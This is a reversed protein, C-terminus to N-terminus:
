KRDLENRVALGIKELIYPKRVFTGAGMEQAKRVRDTESFGSVIIAKQGPSIELIRRYTEMGDIGPDMIMDLVILDAKKNKLYEIAAEGGAVAAVRYGLRGLMNMALERQEKVDDVVLISEGRSRYAIASAAKKVKALEERTVPFYLTFITGKGEESRVDIYGNHDMVTGWVVALGLGTGSRGMVKKTYFPEFIKGLDNASIGIGTDSVILLAYDGEQMTDYGRIPHDLYRNATKITVEGHDSISETANSVLNMITKGLHIPSGKINLLGEELETWIKVNPHYSKLKEFEPARFYDFVLRNLDVVESVNVGRRALTLLDQIIASARMSSQLLNDAYKILSSNVPLEERILESYGVLVGLVNNLDHAVGGALTGLSEMKEARNLHEELKKRETNDRICEIAATIEGKEDRLVSATASIHTDGYPLNPTFAEGFLMDGVRQIATYRKEMERDPHLVLDILMSRRVGYLPLAYEYDGKGLMNEKRVGTMAEMARNWAIIKGEKDIILTADPLFEIIDALRRQSEQLTREAQKRETIDHLSAIYEKTSPIMDVSIAIDKVSGYRDRFRFEYKRPAAGAGTRRQQNYQVMRNLDEAAIFETWSKKGEIEKKSYGSLKEFESNALIIKTDERLLINANGTNEFIVRYLYESRKLSDETQKRETIDRNYVVAGVFKQDKDYIAKEKRWVSVTKGKSTVLEVEGEWYGKERLSLHNKAFSPRSNESFYASSHSGLLYKQPYGLLKTQSDNSDLINGLADLVEVGDPAAAFLFRYNDIRELNSNIERITRCLEFSEIANASNLLVTSLLSLSTNLLLQRDHPLLAVCIGRVRSTTAMVHLLLEKGDRAPVITPRKERLAWAFTGNDIFHDVEKQIYSRCTESDIYKMIFDNSGEEVLFFAISEFPILGQVRIKTEELLTCVDSLKSISNQFDGLSAAMELGDVIFREVDELHKIRGELYAMTSNQKNPNTKPM